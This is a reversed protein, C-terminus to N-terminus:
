LYLSNNNLNIFTNFYFYYAKKVTEKSIKLDISLVHMSPLFDGKKFQGSNILKILVDILQKYVPVQSNIDIKINM